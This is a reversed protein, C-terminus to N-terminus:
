LGETVRGLLGYKTATRLFEAEDAEILLKQCLWVDADPKYPGFSILCFMAFRSTINQITSAMSIRYRGGDSGTVNFFGDGFTRKQAPTLKSWLLEEAKFHSSARHHHSSFVPPLPQYSRRFPIRAM